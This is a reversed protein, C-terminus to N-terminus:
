RRGGDAQEPQLAAPLKRHIGRVGEIISLLIRDRQRDTLAAEVVAAGPQPAVEGDDIIEVSALLARDFVKVEEVTLRRPEGGAQEPTAPPASLAARRAAAIAERIKDGEGERLEGPGEACLLAVALWDRTNNLVDLLVAVRAEAAEARQEAQRFAHAVYRAQVSNVTGGTILTEAHKRARGLEYASLMPESM